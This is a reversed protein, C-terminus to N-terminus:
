EGIKVDVSEVKVEGPAIGIVALLPLIVHFSGAKSQIETVVDQLIKKNQAEVALTMTLRYKGPKLMKKKLDCSIIKISGPCVGSKTLMPLLFKTLATSRKSAQKIAHNLVKKTTELVATVIVKYARTKVKGKAVNAVARLAFNKLGQKVMNGLGDM